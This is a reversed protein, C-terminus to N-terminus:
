IYLFYIITFSRLDKDIKAREKNTPLCVTKFNLIYARCKFKVFDVLFQAKLELICKTVVFMNM